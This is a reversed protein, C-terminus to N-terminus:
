LEFTEPLFGTTGPFEQQLDAALRKVVNSAYGKELREVSLRKGISWYLQIMEANVRRAVV